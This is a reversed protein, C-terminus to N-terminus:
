RRRLYVGFVSGEGPKSKVKMYGDEGSIIQRALYLGLGVGEENKVTDSRYFRGFISAQEEESIGMGTDEVEICVFMEYKKIRLTVSGENTYKIANEVINILAETTWKKDFYAEAKGEEAILTLGKEVAKPNLQRCVFEVVAGVDEWASTLSVIGTELRSMKVLSSILFHLKDAQEHIKEMYEEAESSLAQEKLLDSYLLLNAVPTKTQHSIDAILTKIQEKEGAVNRASLESDALYRGLKNEVSSYMTEDLTEETFTGDIAADLMADLNQMVRKMYKRDIFITLVAIVIIFCAIGLVIKEPM